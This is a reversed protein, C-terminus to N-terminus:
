KGFIKAKLADRESAIASAAPVKEVERKAPTYNSAAVRTLWAHGGAKSVINLMEREEASAAKKDAEALLAELEAIRAEREAIIADKEALQKDKEALEAELVAFREKTYEEEAPTEPEEVADELRQEEAPTEEPMSIEVIYGDEVEITRGDPMIHNGDPSAADGVQPEGEEREVTLTAGTVTTLELDVMAGEPTIGLVDCIAKGIKSFKSMKDTKNNIKPTTKASLPPLIEHIFGLSLAERMDMVRDEAMIAKLTDRDAGTREVYFDLMKDEASRLDAAYRSFYESDYRDSEPSEPYYPNHIILEAHPYARRESAALLIISAMSACLGEITATIRKGSARLADAIAWGEWVDGGVCHIRLDITDDDEPISALFDGVSRYSLGDIGMFSLAVQENNCVIPADIKLIAM